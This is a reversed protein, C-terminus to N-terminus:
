DVGESASEPVGGHVRDPSRDCRRHGPEQIDIRRDGCGPPHSPRRDVPRTGPRGVAPLSEGEKGTRDGSRFRQVLFLLGFGPRDGEQLESLECTGGRYRAALVLFMFRGRPHGWEAPKAIREGRPMPSGCSTAGKPDCGGLNPKMIM